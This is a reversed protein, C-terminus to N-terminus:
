PATQSAQDKFDEVLRDDVYARIIQQRLGSYPLQREKEIALQHVEREGVSLEWRRIKKLGMNSHWHLREVGDVLVFLHNNWQFWQVTVEHVEADGVSFSFQVDFKTGRM